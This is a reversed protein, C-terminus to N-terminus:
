RVRPLDFPVCPGTICARDREVLVPMVTGPELAAWADLMDCTRTALGLVKARPHGQAAAVVLEVCDPAPTRYWGQIEWRVDLLAFHLALRFSRDDALELRGTGADCTGEFQTVGPLVLPRPPTACGFCVGALVVSMTHMPSM